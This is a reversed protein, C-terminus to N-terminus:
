RTVNFSEESFKQEKKNSWDENMHITVDKVIAPTFQEKDRARMAQHYYMTDPDSSAKFGIPDEM